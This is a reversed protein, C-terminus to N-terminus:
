FFPLGSEKTTEMNEKVIKAIIRKDELSLYYAEEYSISGRMYWCIRMLEDRIAKSEKDLQELYEVIEENSATL